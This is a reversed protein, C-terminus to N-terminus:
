KEKFSYAYLLLQSLRLHLNKKFSIKDSKLYENLQYKSNWLFRPRPFVVQDQRFFFNVDAEIYDIRALFPGLFTKWKLCLNRRTNLNIVDGFNRDRSYKFSESIYRFKLSISLFDSKHQRLKISYEM